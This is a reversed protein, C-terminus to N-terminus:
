MNTANFKPVRKVAIIKMGFAQNQISSPCDSHVRPLLLLALLTLHSLVYSHVHIHLDHGFCTTDTVYPGRWIHLM